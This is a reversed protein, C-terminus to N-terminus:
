LKSAQFVAEARTSVELKLFINKVHSKVTEPSIELARAVRKNSLGQSIMTLVDHERATLPDSVRSSPQTRDVFNLPATLNNCAAALPQNVEHTISATLHKITPVPNVHGLVRQLECLQRERRTIELAIAAQAAFNTVLQIENETFYELRRRGISFAGVLENNRLMPVLLAARFGAKVAAVRDVEVASYAEVAAIDPIHVRSKSYRGIFSGHDLLMPPSYRPLSAPSWKYAALRLGAEEVLRFSGAEARCLRVASDVVTQWIPQLDRPSSAIARLVEWTVAQHAALEAVRQQLKSRSPGRRHAASSGRRTIESNM